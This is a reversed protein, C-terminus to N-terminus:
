LVSATPLTGASATWKWRTSTFRGSPGDDFTLAVLKPREVGQAPLVLLSLVLICLGFKRM